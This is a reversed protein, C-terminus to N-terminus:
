ASKAGRRKQLLVVAIGAFVANYITTTHTMQGYGDANFVLEWVCSNLVTLNKSHQIKFSEYM